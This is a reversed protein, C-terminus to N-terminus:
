VLRIFPTDPDQAPSEFQISNATFELSSLPREADQMNEWYGQRTIWAVLVQNRPIGADAALQVFAQRDSCRPNPAAVVLREGSVLRELLSLRTTEINARLRSAERESVVYVKGGGPQAIQAAVKETEVKLLRGVCGVLIVIPFDLDVPSGTATVGAASSFSTAMEELSCERTFASNLKSVLDESKPWTKNLELALRETLSLKAYENAHRAAWERGGSGDGGQYFHNDVCEFEMTPPKATPVVIVSIDTLMSSGSVCVDLNALVAAAAQIRTGGTALIIKPAGADLIEKAMEELAIRSGHSESHVVSVKRNKASCLEKAIFGPTAPTSFVWEPKSRPHRRMVPNWAVGNDASLIYVELTPGQEDSQFASLVCIRINSTASAKIWQGDSTGAGM